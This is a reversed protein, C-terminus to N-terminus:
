VEVQVLNRRKRIQPNVSKSPNESKVVSKLIEPMDFSWRARLPLKENM